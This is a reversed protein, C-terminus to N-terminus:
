TLLDILEQAKKLREDNTLFVKNEGLANKIDEHLNGNEESYRLFVGIVGNSPSMLEIGTIKVKSM